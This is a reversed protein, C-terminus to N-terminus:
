DLNAQSKTKSGGAPVTKLFAFVAKLDDDSMQGITRPMTEAIETGNPRRHERVARFFDRENWGALGVPTLNAGGPPPGYGGELDPGHCGRCGGQAVLKAGAEAPDAPRDASAVRFNAHDIHEAPLLRASGFVAMLAAIPGIRPAPLERDVPPLTRLFAVIAGLDAASLKYEQSPMFIVSRGDKRVGHTLARIFDEDSYRAGLGGRGATLNAGALTGLLRQDVMVKGGFDSDHCDTCSAVTTVLYRGRAVAEPGSLPPVSPAVTTYTRDLRRHVNVVAYVVVSAAILLLVLVLRLIVRLLRKM